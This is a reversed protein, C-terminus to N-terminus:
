SGDVSSSPKVPNPRVARICVSEFGCRIARVPDGLWLRWEVCVTPWAWAGRGVLPTQDTKTKHKKEGM